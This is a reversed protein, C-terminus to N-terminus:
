RGINGPMLEERRRGDKTFALVHIKCGQCTRSLSTDVIKCIDGKIVMLMDKKLDKAKVETVPPLPEPPFPLEVRFPM